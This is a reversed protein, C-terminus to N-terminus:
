WSGYTELAWLFAFVTTWSELLNIHATVWKRANHKGLIIQWEALWVTLQAGRGYQLCVPIKLSLFSSSSTKSASLKVLIVKRLLTVQHYRSMIEARTVSAPQGSRQCATPLNVCIGWSLRLFTKTSWPWSSMLESASLTLVKLHRINDVKEIPLSRLQWDSKAHAECSSCVPHKTQKPTKKRVSSQLGYPHNATVIGTSWGTMWAVNWAVQIGIRGWGPAPKPSRPTAKMEM